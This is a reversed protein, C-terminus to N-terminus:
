KRVLALASVGPCEGMDFGEKNDVVLNNKAAMASTIADRGDSENGVGALNEDGKGFYGRAGMHRKASLEDKVNQPLKFFRTCHQYLTSSHAAPDIKGCLSFRM